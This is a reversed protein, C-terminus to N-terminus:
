SNITREFPYGRDRRTESSTFSTVHERMSLELREAISFIVSSHTRWSSRHSFSHIFSIGGSSAYICRFISLWKFLFQKWKNKRIPSTWIDLVSHVPSQTPDTAVLAYRAKSGDSAILCHRVYINYRYNLYALYALIPFYRVQKCCRLIEGLIVVSSIHM